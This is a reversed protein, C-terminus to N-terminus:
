VIKKSPLVVQRTSARCKALFARPSVTTAWEAKTQMSNPRVVSLVM